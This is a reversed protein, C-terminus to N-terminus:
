VQALDRDPEISWRGALERLEGTLPWGDARPEGEFQPSAGKLAMCGTNDGIARIAAVEEDSLVVERPVGALEARKAEISKV